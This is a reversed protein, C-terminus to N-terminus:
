RKFLTMYWNQCLDRFADRPTWDPVYNQDLELSKQGPRLVNHDEGDESIVDAFHENELHVASEIHQEEDHPNM